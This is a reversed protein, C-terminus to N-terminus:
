THKYPFNYIQFLYKYILNFQTFRLYLIFNFIFITIYQNANHVAPMNWYNMMM